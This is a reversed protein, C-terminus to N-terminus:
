EPMRIFKIDANHRLRAFYNSLVNERKEAMISNAIQNESAGLGDEAVSQIDKIYFSMYGGQGDPIIATFNNVPTRSLLGALEPTIRDYPLVQENSRVKPSYFMPNQIKEKLLKSIKSQYIVVTFSTPHEYDKKHLKYYEKIEAETPRSIQSYSIASYLKKSLLKQKVKAKMQASDLGSANLAAEYLDNVSMNNRKATEKIDDYVESNAVSIKREKIEAEELKQRILKNVALKMNIKSVRMETKIDNMTIGKDKVVVAIGSVMEASLSTICLVCLLFKYM